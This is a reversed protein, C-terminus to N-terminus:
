VFDVGVQGLAPQPDATARNHVRRDDRRWARRFVGSTLAIRLHVLGHFAVLPVEPHLRVDSDVASEPDNMRNRRCRGVNVVAVEQGLQQVALFGADPAIRGIAALRCRDTRAGGSRCIERMVARCTLLAKGFTLPFDMSGLSAYASPDLVREMHDLPDEAKRFDTIAADSLVRVAQNDVERKGIQVEM